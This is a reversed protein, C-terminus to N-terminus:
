RVVVVGEGVKFWPSLECNEAGPSWATLTRITVLVASVVAM